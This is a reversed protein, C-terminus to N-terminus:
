RGGPSRSSTWTCPTCRGPPARAGEPTTEDSGMLFPGAPVTVWYDDGLEAPRGGSEAAHGDSQARSAGSVAATM